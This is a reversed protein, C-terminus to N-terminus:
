AAGDMSMLPLELDFASTKQSPALHRAVGVVHFGRERLDDTVFRGILGSAGLVLIKRSTIEANMHNRTQAHDGRLRTGRKDRPFVPIWKEPDHELLYPRNRFRNARSFTRGRRWGGCCWSISGAPLRRRIKRCSATSSRRRSWCCSLCTRPRM